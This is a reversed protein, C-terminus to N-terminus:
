RAARLALLRGIRRLPKRIALPLRHLLRGQRDAAVAPLTEYLFGAWRATLADITFAAGRRRGNEQMAAYLAHDTALRAVEHQAEEPSHIEVYDLESRRLERYAYEPGLLAPVGALWANVLKTAPKDTYPSAPDPRLSVVLDVASYDHWSTASLRVGHSAFPVADCVWEIGREALFREWRPSLFDRHLNSVFGKFAVRHLATGRSPDRPVLGPQPWHPLFFRRRGDAWRGNQVIEVDALSEERNDARMGVLLANRLRHRQRYLARHQKAHFVVIGEAPAEAALRVRHGAAALRLYTQLVWAREGRMFAHPAADPDLGRLPELDEEGTLFFTVLM